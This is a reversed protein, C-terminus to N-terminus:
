TRFLISLHNTSSYVRILIQYFKGKQKQNTEKILDSEYNNSEGGSTPKVSNVSKCTETSGVVQQECDEGFYNKNCVCHGAICLGHGTCPLDSQACTLARKAECEIGFYGPDCKCGGRLYQGNGSCLVPCVNRSCDLGIFGTDCNCKGQECLGHGNCDNPCPFQASTLKTINLHLTYQQEHNADNIFVFYWQGPEFYELYEISVTSGGSALSNLSSRKIRSNQNSNLEDDTLYNSLSDRFVIQEFISRSSRRRSTQQQQQQSHATTSGDATVFEVLEHNTLTPPEMRKAFFALRAWIPLQKLRFRILGGSQQVFRGAVVSNLSISEALYAAQGNLNNNLNNSSTSSSSESNISNFLIEKYTSPDTPLHISHANNPSNSSSHYNIISPNASSASNASPSSAFQGGAGGASSGATSYLPLNPQQIQQKPLFQPPPFIPVQGNTTSYYDDM